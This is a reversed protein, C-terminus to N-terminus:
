TGEAAADDAPAADPGAEGDTGTEGGTEGGGEGGGENSLPEIYGFAVMAHDVLRTRAQEASQGPTPAYRYTLHLLRNASPHVAYIKIEEVQGGNDDVYGGRTSFATGLEGGLENQGNFHGGEMAELEAKRANVADYLNIGFDQEPDAAIIVEGPGLGQESDGAYSLRIEGPENSELEFTGGAPDIVAIGLEENEVRTPEGASAAADGDAAEDGGSGCAAAVLLTAALALMALAALWPRHAAVPAARFPTPRPIRSLSPRPM